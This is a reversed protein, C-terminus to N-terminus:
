MSTFLTTLENRNGVYDLAGLSKGGRSSQYVIRVVFPFMDITVAIIMVILVVTIVVTIPVISTM